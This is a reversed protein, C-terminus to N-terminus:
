GHNLNTEKNAERSTEEAQQVISDILKAAKASGHEKAVTNVNKIVCHLLKNVLRNVMPVMVDKCSADKRSGVFFKELENQGIQLFKERMQGILPGIERSRFWEMFESVNEYVIQMGRSIDEERNKRNQEAIESLEDINYLYVNEIENVTPEFNRPVAIDIVLLAGKKRQSIIEKFAEKKFLYNQGGASAIAIDAELLREELEEWRGAAIGYKKAIEVGHEYTRNIVNINKCNVHLLRQVLLEGTEGAGIAVVKAASMDSFLQMALKVAVGAVSVHGNAISTDTYVKKAARFSCHFLRNLVKGTTEATCAFRYSQKVQGIIQGEGVVMSELGSAVALLHRVAEEGNYSYLYDMFDDSEIGHFEALFNVVEEFSVENEPRFATYLEVRNCTSLLVFEAQTFRSKLHRLASLIQSSDFALKERIEVPATKHSLGIVAIKM